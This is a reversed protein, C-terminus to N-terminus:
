AMKESDKNEECLPFHCNKQLFFTLTCSPSWKSPLYIHRLGMDRSCVHNWSPVLVSPHMWLVPRVPCGRVRHHYSGSTVEDVEQTLFLTGLGLPQLLSSLLAYFVCYRDHVKRIQHPPVALCGLGRDGLSERSLAEQQNELM